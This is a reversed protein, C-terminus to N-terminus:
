AKPRNKAGILLNKLGRFLRGNMMELLGDAMERNFVDGGMMTILRLPMSPVMSRMLLATPSDPDDRVITDMQNIMVKLLQRGIFSESLEGLPTNLTYLEKGHVRNEPVPRGLLLEFEEQSVRADVPFNVYSPLRDKEAVVDETRNSHIQVEGQLRIDRSSAGILIRYRGSEVHWNKIVTNYYAFARKGLQFTIEKEEGPELDIKEFGKLEKEPRFVRPAV